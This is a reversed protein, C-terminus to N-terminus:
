KMKFLDSRTVIGVIKEKRRILVAYNDKLLVTIVSTSTNEGVTPFSEGMISKVQLKKLNEISMNNTLKDLITKDTLSGVSHGGEMVPIQSYGYTEMLKIAKTLKDNKSLSIIKETMIQKATSEEKKELSELVEFIKRIITYSPSVKNSEIKAVISQSIGSLMALRKQTLDLLKRRKKIEETEPLM